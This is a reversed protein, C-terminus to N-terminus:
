CSSFSPLSFIFFVLRPCSAFLHSVATMERPCCVNVYEDLFSATFSLLEFTSFFILSFHSSLRWARAPMTQIARADHEYTCVCVCMSYTNVYTRISVDIKSSLFPGSPEDMDERKTSTGVVAAVNKLDDTFVFSLLFHVLYSVASLFYALLNWSDFNKRDRKEAPGQVMNAGVLSANIFRGMSSSSVKILSWFFSPCRM